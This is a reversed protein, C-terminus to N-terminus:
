TKGKFKQPFRFSGMMSIRQSCFQMGKLEISLGNLPISRRKTDSNNGHCLLMLFTPSVAFIEVTSVHTPCGYM